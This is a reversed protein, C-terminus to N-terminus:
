KCEVELSFSESCALRLNPDRTFLPITVRASPGEMVCARAGVGVKCGYVVHRLLQKRNLDQIKGLESATVSPM